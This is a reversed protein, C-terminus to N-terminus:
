GIHKRCYIIEITKLSNMALGKRRSIDHETHLLSGLYKCKKWNSESKKNFHHKETNAANIHLGEDELM